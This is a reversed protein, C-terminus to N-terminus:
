AASMGVAGAVVARSVQDPGFDDISEISLWEALKVRARHVRSKITGVACGCIEAAEKCSFGSAGVLILAERESAPLKALARRLEEFYLRSHQRPYTKLTEAHRGNSDEVERRRKRYGTRFVNRQITFLWAGLNTGLEFSGINALARLTEQVLDDARDVNGSLSIAFARLSPVIALISDRVSLNCDASSRNTSVTWTKPSRRTKSPANFKLKL